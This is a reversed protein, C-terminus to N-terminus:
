HYQVITTNVGPTYLRLSSPSAGNASSEGQHLEAVFIFIGFPRTGTNIKLDLVGPLGASFSMAFSFLTKRTKVAGM